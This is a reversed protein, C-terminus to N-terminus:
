PKKSAWQLECRLGFHDSPFLSKDGHKIPADGIIRISKPKWHDSRILVRDIRRSAEGPFSGRKAMDSKEINWTYGPDDKTLTLWADTYRKDLAGTDPQENDGFNFDGLLVADDAPELMPWITKLQQARTPGAKLPSEMHTTSIILKRGRVNLHAAIALRQQPGPLKRFDIKAIPHRSLIFLGRPSLTKGRHKPWDYKKVWALATLRDVFWPAAEQLAIVDADSAELIELLRPVREAARDKDALVNWTVLTLTDTPEPDAARLLPSTWAIHLITLLLLSRRAHM